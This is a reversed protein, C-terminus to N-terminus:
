KKDENHLEELKEVRKRLNLFEVDKLRTNFIVCSIKNPYDTRFYKEPSDDNFVKGHRTIVEHNIMTGGLFETISTIRTMKFKNNKYCENLNYEQSCGIFILCLMLYKM